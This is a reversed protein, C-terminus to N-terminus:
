IERATFTLGCGDHLECLRLKAEVSDVEDVRASLTSWGLARAARLRKFGDIIELGDRGAYVTLASLQGHQELSRRLPTLASPACVRLASLREGLSALEVTRLEVQSPHM